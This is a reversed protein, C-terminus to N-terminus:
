ADASATDPQELPNFVEIHQAVQAPLFFLTVAVSLIDPVTSENTGELWLRPVLQSGWM